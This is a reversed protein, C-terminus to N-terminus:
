EIGQQLLKKTYEYGITIIEQPNAFLSQTVHVLEPPEIFIECQKSQELIDRALLINLSIVSVDKVTYKKLVPLPNVHVGIMLKQDKNTIIPMNDTVGGDVLCKGEYYIPKFIWPVACSASVLKALDWSTYYLAQASQIDTVCVSFPLQLSEIRTVDTAKRLTSRIKAASLIGDTGFTLDLYELLSKKTCIEEIEAPSKGSAILAWILSGMSTGAVSSITYWSEILAKYVWVHAFWRIGGGSLVLHYWQKRDTM